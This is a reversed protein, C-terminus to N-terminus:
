EGAAGADDEPADRTGRAEMEHQYAGWLASPLLSGIAVMAATRAQLDRAGSAQGRAAQLRLAPGFRVVLAGEEEYIGCPIVPVGVRSLLLLFDGSGPRAELLGWGTRGEPFMGLVHHPGQRSVMGAAARLASARGGVQDDLAPLVVLAYLRGLRTFLHRLFPNPFSRGAVVLPWEATILWHISWRADPRRRGVAATIAMTTWGVWLGPRQYHNAVLAFSGRDPIHHAGRVSPFAGTTTLCRTSDTVLSRRRGRLLGIMWTAVFRPQFRYRAAAVTSNM